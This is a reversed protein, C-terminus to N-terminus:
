SYGLAFRVPRDEPLPSMVDGNFSTRLGRFFFGGRSEFQWISCPLVPAVHEGTCLFGAFFGSAMMASACM